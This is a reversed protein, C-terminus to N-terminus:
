SLAFTKMVLSFLAFWYSPFDWSCTYFDSISSSRRNPMMFFFLNIVRAYICIALAPGHLGWVQRKLRQSGMHARSLQCTWSIHNPLSFTNFFPPSFVFIFIKQLKEHFVFLIGYPFTSCFFKILIPSMTLLDNLVTVRTINHIVSSCPANM